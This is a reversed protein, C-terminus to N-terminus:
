RELRRAQMGGTLIKSKIQRLTQYMEKDERTKETNMLRKSLKNIKKM